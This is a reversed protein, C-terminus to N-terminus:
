PQGRKTRPSRGRLGTRPSADPPALVCGHPALVCGHPGDLGEGVTDVGWELHKM